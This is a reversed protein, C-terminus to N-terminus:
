SLTFDFSARDGSGGIRQYTNLTFTGNPSAPVKGAELDATIVLVAKGEGYLSISQNETPLEKGEYALSQVQGVFRVGSDNVWVFVFDTKGDSGPVADVFYLSQEGEPSIVKGKPEWEPIKEDLPLTVTSPKLLITTDQELVSLQFQLTGLNEMGLADLHNERKWSSLDLIIQGHDGPMLTIMDGHPILHLGNLTEESMRLLRIEDGTNKFDLYMCRHGQEDDAVVAATHKVGEAEFFSEKSDFLPPDVKRDGLTEIFSKSKEGTSVKMVGTSFAEETLCLAIESIASIGYSQLLGYDLLIDYDMTEDIFVSLYDLYVPVYRGNVSLLPSGHENLSLFYDRPGTNEMRISLVAQKEEYKLSLATIKLGEADYLVEKEIEPTRDFPPLTERPAQEETAATTVAETEAATTAEMIPKEPAPSAPACATLSLAAMCCLALLEKKM